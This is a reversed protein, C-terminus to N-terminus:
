LLAPSSGLIAIIVPHRIDGRQGAQGLNGVTGPEVKTESGVGTSELM